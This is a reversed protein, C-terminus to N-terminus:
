ASGSHVVKLAGIAGVGRLLARGSPCGGMLGGQCGPSREGVGRPKLSARIGREHPGDSRFGGLHERTLFGNAAYAGAIADRVATELEAPAYADYAAVAV